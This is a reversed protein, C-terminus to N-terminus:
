GATAFEARLAERMAPDMAYIWRNDRWEPEPLLDIGFESKLKKETRGFRFKQAKVISYAVGMREAAQELSFPGDYSAFCEILRRTNPSQARELLRQAYAKLDADSSSPAVPGSRERPADPEDSALAADIVKRARLLDAPDAMDVVLQPMSDLISCGSGTHTSPM